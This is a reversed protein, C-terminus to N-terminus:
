NMTCLEISSLNEMSEVEQLVSRGAWRRHTASQVATITLNYVHKIVRLAIDFSCLLQLATYSQLITLPYWWHFRYCVLFIYQHTTLTISQNCYALSYLVVAGALQSSTVVANPVVLWLLFKRISLEQRRVTSYERPDLQRSILRKCNVFQIYSATSALLSGM